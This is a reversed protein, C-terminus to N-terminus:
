KISGIAKDIEVCTACLSVSGMDHVEVRAPLSQEIPKGKILRRAHSDTKHKQETMWGIFFKHDDSCMSCHQSYFLAIAATTYWEFEPRQVEVFLKELADDTDNDLLADLEDDRPPVTM